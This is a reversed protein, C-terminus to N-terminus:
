RHQFLDSLVLAEITDALRYDAAKGKAAVKALEAHDALSTTRRIAFTALKEVFAANFKDVDAVLLKKFAAADAFKRGDALEGSADVKPNDGAGDSAVEETRWRGIADYNDFALGLPDIKQHCASCNPDNRHADLKMRITAKPQTAPTPEIPKVNAPPPPPSKGLISEMVWKGRHVPRHRTGDSTLSLVAAQTLLGGRHDGPKLTVRQFRDETVGALGYHEALRVNLVTWDSDLFERLSLNKDLVERFYGTTEGIMSKQLYDDYDPYLKKDPPFMGVMRLQLWQRPFAEAFRAAKPDRLMRGVQAKLVDPRTLSGDKAARHLEADPTTSWLFYSLRAALEFPTLKTREPAGEVLYLFDKSCLVAVLGTKFAAEFKEGSKVEGEVLKAFREVEAPAVPRRFAREAFKALSERLQAPSGTDKPLYERQAFTPGPEVLPGEWEVSDVILFPMIPEGAEDTLKIQWPRRGDKISFFPRKPDSRGSRPLNSPGPVDNSMRFNHNGAPLHTTFEVTTPRDEPAVVDQEHLMRDLNVAYFALHPARGGAPKLGSLKIRVKYYGAAPLAVGPGVRGGQLDHGPWLDVRVKDALGQATLAARDPGGRLDIADKKKSIPVPAKDPMAEALVAEAAAMYKEVHSPSLSLVSGIREFGHWEPDDPLGNPDTADFTVGLLDRVTNAYEERTLRHFSVKERKALRAAEGERLKATIAEVVRAAEDAKPQRANKPPMEGTNMREIVEMWKMTSAGAAFDRSLTDLRFEGKQVKADHCKDCYAAFFPLVARDFETDAPPAALAPSAPTLLAALAAFPLRTHPM